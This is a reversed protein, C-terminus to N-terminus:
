WGREMALVVFAAGWIVWYPHRLVMAMLGFVLGGLCGRRMV